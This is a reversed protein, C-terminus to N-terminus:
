LRGLRKLYAEVAKRVVEAVSDEREGALAELAEFHPREFDLTFRVPDKVRRPRGAGERAGGRGTKKRAAVNSLTASDSHITLPIEIM